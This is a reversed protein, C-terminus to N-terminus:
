GVAASVHVPLRLCRHAHKWAAAYARRRLSHPLTRKSLGTSFGSVCRRWAALIEMCRCTPEGGCQWYHVDRRVRQRSHNVFGLQGRDNIRITHQEGSCFVSVSEPYPGPQPPDRDIVWDALTAVDDSDNLDFLSGRGDKKVRITRGHWFVNLSKLVLDRQSRTLLRRLNRFGLYDDLDFTYWAQGPARGTIDNVTSM